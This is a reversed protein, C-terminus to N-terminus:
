GKRKDNLPQRTEQKVPYLRGLMDVHFKDVSLATKIGISRILGDKGATQNRDHAWVSIAGTSRDLGSFYGDIHPKGNLRISVWDNPHLSFLFRYNEDMVTWEEEPKSQIVARNPLEPKVADAVYLPVAHFKKGDAFIDVRLMSGNNAIGGRVPLGSKQTDTLNVSRVIPAAKGPKSPKYFPEKFAKKGDDGHTELRQRIAAILKENRPDDWGVIREIDKLKLNELPTKVSSLGQDLLKASRITEQHAQGLGRRLPARSVRIPKITQARVKDYGSVHELNL